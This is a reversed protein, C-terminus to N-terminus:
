LQLRAIPGGLGRIGQALFCTVVPIDGRLTQQSSFVTFNFRIQGEITGIRDKPDVFGARGLECMWFQLLDFDGRLQFWCFLQASERKRHNRLVVLSPTLPDYVM